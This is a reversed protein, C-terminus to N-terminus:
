ALIGRVVRGQVDTLRFDRSAFRYTLKEHDFGMLHLITAHLDHVHVPNEAAQFGFEDTSGYVTGGKVGGGALVMSFGASNHDRGLKPKGANTIEVTADKVLVVRLYRFGGRLHENSATWTSGTLLTGSTLPGDDGGGGNSHDGTEIYFTSESWFFQVEADTGSVTGFNVTTYGGVEKGFDFVADSGTGKLM